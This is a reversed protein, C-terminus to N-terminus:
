FKHVDEKTYGLEKLVGGISGQTWGFFGKAGGIAEQMSPPGSVLVKQGPQKGQGFMKTIMAKDIYGTQVSDDSSSKKSVTFLKSFRDPYNRELDEIEKRLLIDDESNNAYILKLVTKDDPNQLIARSLQYIPTIGSGGALLLVSKHENPKYDLEHLPKFKMSEGPLLAHMKTSAKGGPYKKVMFTIQGREHNDSIPTYPRMVPLWGDEPWHQSLMSTVPALGSVTDETPLIFTIKRVNHNVEETSHVRLETFGSWKMKTLAAKSDSPLSEAHAHQPQAFSHVTYVTAAAAITYAAARVVSTQLAAM